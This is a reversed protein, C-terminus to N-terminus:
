NVMSTNQPRLDKWSSGAEVARRRSSEEMGALDLGGPRTGRELILQSDWNGSVGWLEQGTVDLSQGYM